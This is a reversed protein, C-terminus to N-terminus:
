VSGALDGVRVLERLFEVSGCTGRKTGCCRCDLESSAAVEVVERICSITIKKKIM